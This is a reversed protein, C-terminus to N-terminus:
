IINSIIEQFLAQSKELIKQEKFDKLSHKNEPDNFKKILKDSNKSTPHSVFHRSKIFNWCSKYNDSEIITNYKSIGHVMVVLDTFGIYQNLLLKKTDDYRGLSKHRELAKNWVIESNDNFEQTFQM